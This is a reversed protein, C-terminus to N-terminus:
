GAQEAAAARDEPEWLRESAQDQPAGEQPGGEPAQLPTKLWNWTALSAIEAKRFGGLQPLFHGVEQCLTRLFMKEFPFFFFSFMGRVYM